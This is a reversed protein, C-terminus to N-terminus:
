GLEHPRGGEILSEYVAEYAQARSELDLHAEAWARASKAVAVRRERHLLLDVLSAVFEDDTEAILAHEGPKVDLGQIALPSAVLAKGHALAELVKVRMGGGKRLPAAFVAASELHPLVDPVDHLVEVGPGRAADVLPSAYSGVVRLTADPVLARVQPFIETMLRLAADVNPHHVFSGIYIIERDNSGVPDLPREPVDYGLPICVVPAAPELETITARDHETFVVLTDVQRVVSRGLGRWARAELPALLRTTDADSNFPDHDVLLRPTSRPIMPLFQGM